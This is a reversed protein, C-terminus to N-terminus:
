ETNNKADNAKYFTKYQRLVDLAHYKEVSKKNEAEIHILRTNQRRSLFEIRIM